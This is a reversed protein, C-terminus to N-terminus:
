KSLQLAGYIMIAAAAFRIIYIKATHKELLKPAFISFLVALIMSVPLSMIIATIGVNVALATTLAFNTLTQLLGMLGIPWIHGMKMKFVDKYFLPITPLIVLFSIIAVWLNVTWVDNFTAAWKTSANNLALFAMSSLGIGVSPNFFSKVHFKEDVTAFIGAIIIISTLFVQYTTFKEQLFLVGLLVAFVTRFNFLPSITSVDLRYIALIYFIYFLASTIGAIIVPLFYHPIIAHNLLALPVILILVTLMWLFNFLWPNKIAHKSTLKTIIIVLASSFSAVWAFLIYSM